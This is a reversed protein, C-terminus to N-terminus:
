RSRNSALGLMTSAKRRWPQFRHRNLPELAGRGCFVVRGKGRRLARVSASISASRVALLYTYRSAFM